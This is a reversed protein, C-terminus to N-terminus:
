DYQGRMVKFWYQHTHMRRAWPELRMVIQHRMDYFFLTDPEERKYYQELKRLNYDALERPHGEGITLRHLPRYYRTNIM